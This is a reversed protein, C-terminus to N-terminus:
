SAVELRVGARALKKPIPLFGAEPMGAPSAPGVNQLVMIDDETIDCVNCYTKASFYDSAHQKIVGKSRGTTGSTFMIRADDVWTVEVGPDSDPADDLVPFPEHAVRPDPGHPSGSEWIFVHELVPLEGAVQDLRDLLDDSIVLVDTDGDAIDRGASALTHRAQSLSRNWESANFM